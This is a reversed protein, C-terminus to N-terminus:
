KIEIGTRQIEVAFPSGSIFDSSSIPHPEIRSDIQSAILMLQVQIDFRDSDDLERFVLAVDIDSDLNQRGKAYSGFLFVREIGIYEQRILKLYYEIANNIKADM